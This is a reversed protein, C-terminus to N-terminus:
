FNSVTQHFIGVKLFWMSGFIFISSLVLSVLLINIILGGTLQGQARKRHLAVEQPSVSIDVGLLASITEPKLREDSRFIKHLTQVSEAKNESNQRLVTLATEVDDEHWKASLLISKIEDDPAGVDIGNLRLIKAVQEREIM